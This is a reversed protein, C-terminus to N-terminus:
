LSIEDVDKEEEFSYNEDYAFKGWLKIEDYVFSLSLFIENCNKKMVTKKKM